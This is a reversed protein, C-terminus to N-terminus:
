PGTVAMTFRTRLPLYSFGHAMRCNSTLLTRKAMRWRSISSLGRTGCLMGDALALCHPMLVLHDSAAQAHVYTTSPTVDEDVARVEAKGPYLVDQPIHLLEALDLSVVLARLPDIGKNVPEWPADVDGEFRVSRIESCLRLEPQAIPHVAVCITDISHSTSIVDSTSRACHLLTCIASLSVAVQCLHLLEVPHGRSTPM